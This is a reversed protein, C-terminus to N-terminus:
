FLYTKKKMKIKNKVMDQIQTELKEVSKVSQHSGTMINEFKTELLDLRQNRVSNCGNMSMPRGKVEINKIELRYKSELM